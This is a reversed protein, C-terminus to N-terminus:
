KFLKIVLKFFSPVLYGECVSSIFILIISIIFIIFYKKLFGSLNICKDKLFILKWLYIVFMISYSGILLTVLINIINTPILYIVGAALGKYGYVMFFSSLSFGIIFGKMYILFINFLIGIISMGFIWLLLSFIANQTIANIFVQGNNIKNNDINSIFTNIQNTVLSKDTDSTVLMFISGSIIGLFILSIVFVNIKKNPLLMSFVNNLKKSM